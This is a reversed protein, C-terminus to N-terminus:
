TKLLLYEYVECMPTTIIMIIIMYNQKTKIQRDKLVTQNKIYKVLNIKFNINQILGTANKVIKLTDRFVQTVVITLLISICYKNFIYAIEGRVVMFELLSQKGETNLKWGWVWQRYLFGCAALSRYHLDLKETFDM